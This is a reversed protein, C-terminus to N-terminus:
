VTAVVLWAGGARVNITDTTSNYVLLGDRPSVIADRQTTTMSPLGLGQRTSQVDLIASDDTDQGGVIIKDALLPKQAKKLGM